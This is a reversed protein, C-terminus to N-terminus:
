MVKFIEGRGGRLVDGHYQVFPPSLFRGRDFGNMENALWNALLRLVPFSQQSSGKRFVPLDPPPQNPDSLVITGRKMGAGCNTGCQGLVILTGALMDWGALEGCTKGVVIVGRRMAQGVGKGAHGQIIITGRNMGFKSGPYNAGALDGADGAVRITGGTMECGTFDSVDGHVNILGGVMQSGLHRGASSEVAMWGVSMSAGIWHVSNLHGRWIIDPQETKDNKLKGSVRFLEGLEIDRNGFGITQKAIQQTSSGRLSEPVINPVEIPLSTEVQQELILPM